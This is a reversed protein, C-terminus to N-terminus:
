LGIELRDIVPHSKLLKQGGVIMNHITIGPSGMSASIITGKRPVKPGTASMGSLLEGLKFVYM